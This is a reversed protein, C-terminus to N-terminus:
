LEKNTDAPKNITQVAKSNRKVNKEFFYMMTFIALYAFINFWTHHDLDLPMPWEKNIAVLFLAIRLSNIFWLLFVGGLSWFLKRKMTGPNAIVYALWFSYVGYGVCDMAILIGKGNFYRVIFGPAFYTDINFLSLYFKTSHMLSLKIWSVYDLYKEVFPSYIGGPAAIGIWAITGYYLIGFLM